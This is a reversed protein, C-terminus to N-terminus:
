ILVSLPAVDVPSVHHLGLAKKDLKGQPYAVHDSVIDRVSPVLLVWTSPSAEVLRRLQFSVNDKFIDVPTALATGNRIQPHQSDVFPGMKSDAADVPLIM